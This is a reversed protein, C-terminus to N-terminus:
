PKDIGSPGDVKFCEQVKAAAHVCTHVGGMNLTVGNEGIDFIFPLKSQHHFNIMIDTM